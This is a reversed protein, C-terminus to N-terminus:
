RAEEGTDDFLDHVTPATAARAAWSELRTLDTCATVRTRIEDSVPLGRAALVVLVMRAAEETKGEAKGEALGEAKGEARGVTKGEELGRGYHERAFPSYVPWATSTM